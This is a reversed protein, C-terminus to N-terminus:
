LGDRKPYQLGKLPFGWMEKQSMDELGRSAGSFGVRRRSSDQRQHPGHWVRTVHGVSRHILVQYGLQYWHICLLYNMHHLVYLCFHVCISCRGVTIMPFPFPHVLYSNPIVYRPATPVVHQEKCWAIGAKHICGGKFVCWQFQCWRRSEFCAFGMVCQHLM